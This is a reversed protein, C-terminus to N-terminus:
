IAEEKRFKSLPVNGGGGLGTLIFVSQQDVQTWCVPHVEGRYYLKGGKWSDPSVGALLALNIIGTDIAENAECKEETNITVREDKAHQYV